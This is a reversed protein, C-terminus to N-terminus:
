EIRIYDKKGENNQVRYIGAYNLSKEKILAEISKLDIQNFKVALGCSAAISRPVPLIIIKINDDNAAKEFALAHHTSNFTIICQKDDM